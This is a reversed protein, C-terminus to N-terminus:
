RLCRAGLMGCGWGRQQSRGPVTGRVAAARLAGARVHARRDVPVGGVGRGRVGGRVGHGGGGIAAPLGPMRRELVGRPWLVTAAALRGDPVTGRLEGLRLGGRVRRVGSGGLVRVCQERRVRVRGKNDARVNRARQVRGRDRGGGRRRPGRGPVRSRVGARSVRRRLRVRRRGAARGPVERAWRVHGCSPGRPWGGGGPSRRVARLRRRLAWGRVRRVGGGRVGGPVRVHPRRHVDRSWQLRGSRRQEAGHPVAVRMGAGRLRGRVHVRRCRGSGRRVHRAWQVGSHRQRGRGVRAAWRVPQVGRRLAAARM